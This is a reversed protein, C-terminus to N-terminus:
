TSFLSLINFVSGTITQILGREELVTLMSKQEGRKIRSAKDQWDLEAGAVKTLYKMGIWRKAVRSPGQSARFACRTCVYLESRNSSHLFTRTAM